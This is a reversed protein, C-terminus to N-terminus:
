LGHRFRRSQHGSVRRSRRKDGTTEDWLKKMDRILIDQRTWFIDSVLVAEPPLAALPDFLWDEPNSNRWLWSLAETYSSVPPRDARMDLM